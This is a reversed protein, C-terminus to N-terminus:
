FCYCNNSTLERIDGGNSDGAYCQMTARYVKGANGPLYFINYYEDTNYSYYGTNGVSDFFYYSKWTGLTVDYEQVFINYVGIMNMTHTGLVDVEINLMHNSGSTVGISYSLLYNSARTPEEEDEAAFAPVCLVFAATIALIICLLKKM